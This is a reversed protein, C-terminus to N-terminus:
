YEWCGYVFHGLYKGCEACHLDYEVEGIEDYYPNKHVTENSDCDCTLPLEDMM